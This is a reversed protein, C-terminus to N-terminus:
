RTLGGNKENGANNQQQQAKKVLAMDIPTLHQTDAVGANHTTIHTNIAEAFRAIDKFPIQINTEVSTWADWEESKRHIPTIAHGSFSPLIQWKMIKNQAQDLKERNEAEKGFNAEFTAIESRPATKVIDQRSHPMAHLMTFAHKESDPFAHMENGTRDSLLVTKLKNALQVAQAHNVPANLAANIQLQETGHTGKKMDFTLFLPQGDLAGKLKLEPNEKGYANTIVTHEGIKIDDLLILNDQMHAVFLAAAAHVTAHEATKEEGLVAELDQLISLNKQTVSPKM